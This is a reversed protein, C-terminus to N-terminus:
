CERVKVLHVSLTKRSSFTVVFATATTSSSTNTPLTILVSLTWNLCFFFAEALTATAEDAEFIFVLTYSLLYCASLLCLCLIIIKSLKVRWHQHQDWTAQYSQHRPAASHPVRWFCHRRCRYESYDSHRSRPCHRFIQFSLLSDM